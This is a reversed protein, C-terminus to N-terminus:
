PGASLLHGVSPEGKGGCLGTKEPTHTAEDGALLPHVLHKM